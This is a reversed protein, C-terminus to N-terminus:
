CPDRSRARRGQFAWHVSSSGHRRSLRQSPKVILQRQQGHPSPGPATISNTTGIYTNTLNVGVRRISLSISLVGSVEPIEVIRLMYGLLTFSCSMRESVQGAATAMRLFINPYPQM